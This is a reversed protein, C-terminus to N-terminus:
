IKSQKSTQRIVCVFYNTRTRQGTYAYALVEGGGGGGSNWGFTDEHIKNDFFQHCCSFLLREYADNVGLDCDITQGHFHNLISHCSQLSSLAAVKKYIFNGM